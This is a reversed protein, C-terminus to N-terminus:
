LKSVTQCLSSRILNQPWFTVTWPWLSVVFQWRYASCRHIYSSCRHLATKAILSIDKWGDTRGDKLRTFQLFFRFFCIGFIKYRIFSGKM